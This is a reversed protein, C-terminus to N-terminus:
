RVIVLNLKIFSVYRTGSVGRTFLMSGIETVDFGKSKLLESTVTM